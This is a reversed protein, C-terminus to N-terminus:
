KKDKNNKILLAINFVFIGLGMGTTILTAAQIARINDIGALRTFQQFSITMIILSVLITRKIQKSDM